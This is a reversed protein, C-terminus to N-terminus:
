RRLLSEFLWYDVGARQFGGNRTCGVYRVGWARTKAPVGTGSGASDSGAAAVVVAAAPRGATSYYEM